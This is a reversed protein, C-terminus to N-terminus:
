SRAFADVAEQVSLYIRHGFPELFGARLAERRTNANGLRALAVAIGRACFAEIATAVIEAGSYDVELVGSCELVLLRVPQPASAMTLTLREVIRRANIFTLPAAPAFVVVGPERTGGANDNVPWWITTGPVRLLESSPPRAIAYIGHLLSLGVSLAVGAEIPLLVVLVLSAAVLAIEWRGRKAIRVMERVRFLRLGIAILIGGLAAYPLTAILPAAFVVLLAIAVVAFIGAFQSRGGASVVAATRPPSANVAFSGFLSAAISGVGVAVFDASMDDGDSPFSRAVAATQIICVVAVILAIPILQWWPIGERMHAFMGGAPLTLVLGGLTAVGRQELHFIEVSTGALVIALLAGPIRPGARETALVLVIVGLAIFLTFRNARAYETIVLAQALVPGHLAGVGMVTPLQGIIIRAGVGALFGITVPISLLDAIWGARIFGAVILAIGALLAVVGAYAGYLPSSVGVTAVISAAFIPSITSDAGVSVYRNMGFIAFAITGAAFAVLGAAAPMGALNATALQEPLAIAALILGAFVDGLPKAGRLAGLM